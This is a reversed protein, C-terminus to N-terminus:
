KELSKNLDKLLAEVDIGHAMAGEELTEFQAIACGICGLGHSIFVSVTEPYQDVIDGISMDKTILM